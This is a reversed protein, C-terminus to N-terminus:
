KATLARGHNPHYGYKEQAAKRAVIAKELDDFYGLHKNRDKLRIAAHWKRRDKNWSVGIAGSKNNKPIASNKSNQEFTVSRLNELRNDTRDGNIHDIYGSPWTGHHLAYIARHAYCYHSMIRGAMYGESTLTNLAPMGEFRSNFSTRANSHPMINVGRREWYLLGTSPDQKLLQGLLKVTLLPIDAM